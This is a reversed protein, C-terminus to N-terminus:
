IDLIGFCKLYKSNNLTVRVKAEGRNRRNLLFYHRIKFDDLRLSVM